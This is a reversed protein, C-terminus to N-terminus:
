GKYLSPCTLASCRQHPWGINLIPEYELSGSITLSDWTVNRLWFNYPGAIVDDIDSGMVVSLEIVVPDSISRIGAMLDRSVNDISLTARPVEDDREDPLQITFPCAQWVQDSSDQHEVLDNIVHVDGIGPLTLKLRCLVAEDTEAAQMAARAATSITRSM